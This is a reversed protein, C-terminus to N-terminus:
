HMLSRTADPGDLLAQADAGKRVGNGILQADFFRQHPSQSKNPLIVSYVGLAVM